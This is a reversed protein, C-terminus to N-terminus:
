LSFKSISFVFTQAASYLEKLNKEFWVGSLPIASCEYYRGNLEFLIVRVKKSAWDAFYEYACYDKNGMKFIEPKRSLKFDQSTNAKFTLSINAILYLGENEIRKVTTNDLFIEELVIASTYDEKLLWFLYNPSQANDNPVFWGQPIFASLTGDKATVYESSLPYDYSYHYSSVCSVFVILVVSYFLNKLM